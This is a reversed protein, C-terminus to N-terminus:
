ALTESSRRQAGNYHTWMARVMCGFTELPSAPEDVRVSDGGLSPAEVRTETSDTTSM